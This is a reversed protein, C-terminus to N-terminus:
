GPRDLPSLVASAGRNLVHTYIMTTAVDAHGLLSQVTRIDTGSQLAHTAFSHRLTHATVHKVLGTRDRARKLARSVFEADVHHRRERDDRPDLSRYPNDFLGIAEKLSLVRRVAEDLRAMPVEGKEILDPLWLNFLNSAMAMDMGALFAKKAADRGDAAYGHVILEEDATYDGVVLGKFGWQGHLLDTLLWKNATATVLVDAWPPPCAPM